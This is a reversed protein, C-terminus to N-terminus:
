KQTDVAATGGNVVPTTEQTSSKPNVSDIITQIFQKISDRSANLEAFVGDVIEESHTMPKGDRNTPETNLIYRTPGAAIPLDDVTLLGRGFLVQIVGRLQDRASVEEKLQVEGHEFRVDTNREVVEQPDDEEKTGGLQTMEALESSVSELFEVVHNKAPQEAIGGTSETVVNVLDNSLRERDNRLTERATQIERIRELHEKYTEDTVQTKSFINFLVTYSPFESLMITEIRQTKVDGDANVFRRYLEYEEGNTLIGLDVNDLLLYEKIQDRNKEELSTGVSKAEVFLKSTGNHFFAYDVINRNHNGFHYEMNGDTPIEWGLLNVFDTIIATKTEEENMHPNEDLIKQKTQSFSRFENSTIESPAESSFSM